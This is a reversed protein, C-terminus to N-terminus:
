KSSPMLLTPSLSSSGTFHIATSDNVLPPCRLRIAGCLAAVSTTLVHINTLDLPKKERFDDCYIIYLTHMTDRQSEGDEIKKM